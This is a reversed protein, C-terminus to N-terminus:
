VQSREKKNVLSELDRVLFDLHIECLEPLQVRILHAGDLVNPEPRNKRAFVLQVGQNGTPVLEVEKRCGIFVWGVLNKNEEGVFPADSHLGHPLLCVRMSDSLGESERMCGVRLSRLMKSSFLMFRPIMMKGPFM